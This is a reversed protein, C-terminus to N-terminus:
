IKLIDSLTERRRIETISGNPKVLVEPPKPRSNYNSSMSFGYAGATEISLLDGERVKNIHRSKAFKDGSECLNGVIDVVEEVGEPNSINVIRHYSDYAMPRILHNFGSNVGVFIKGDPNRKINTAEVLLHGAEAVLYRGPEIILTLQRGYIKCFENFQQSIMEGLKGMDLQEEWKRYSVGLGGGLDVFKLDPFSLAIDLIAKQAQLFKNFDLIQSGIHHHVGIVKLRFQKAIRKIEETQSHWIGFKSDPGGTICHDHHGAGIDTNIRVCVKSGPYKKGIKELLSLSDVNVLIKKEFVFDIEEMEANNGTFIIRNPKFGASLALIMEGPSVADIGIMEDAGFFEHLILKLIFPNSNAKMAYLIMSPKYAISSKLRRLQEIIKEQFYVYVPTGFNKAVRKFIKTEEM